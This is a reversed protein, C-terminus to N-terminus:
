LKTKMAIATVVAHHARELRRDRSRRGSQKARGTVHETANEGAGSVAGIVNLASDAALPGVLRQTGGDVLDLRLKALAPSAALPDALVAPILFAAHAEVARGVHLRFQRGRLFCM